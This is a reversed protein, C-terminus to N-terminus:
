LNVHYNGVTSRIHGNIDDYFLDKYNDDFDFLIDHRNPSVCTMQKIDPVTQVVKHSIEFTTTYVPSLELAFKGLVLQRIQLSVDKYFKTNGMQELPINYFEWETHVNTTVMRCTGDSHHNFMMGSSRLVSINRIGSTLCVIGSRYRLIVHRLEPSETALSVSIHNCAKEVIFIDFTESKIRLRKALYGAYEELCLDTSPDIITRIDSILSNGIVSIVVDAETTQTQNGLKVTAHGCFMSSVRPNTYKIHDSVESHPTAFDGALSWLLLGSTFFVQLM